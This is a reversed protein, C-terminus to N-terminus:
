KGLVFNLLKKGVEIKEVETSNGKERASKVARQLKEIRKLLEEKEPIPMAGSHETTNWYGILQDETILQTQAPHKDTADYLVIPRQIKATRQTKVPESKYFKSNTDKNWDYSTDLTPVSNIFTYLDTLEKELFLLYTVPVKEVVVEGDVVIDSKAICNGWDKTATIDFLDALTDAAKEIMESAIMQVKVSDEPLDPSDDNIKEFKKIKGSFLVPKQVTKYLETLVKDKRNKAGKEIAIIQNQQINNSM